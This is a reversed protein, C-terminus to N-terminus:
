EHREVSAVHGIPLPTVQTIYLELGCHDAEEDAVWAEAVREADRLNPSQVSLRAYVARGGEENYYAIVVEFSNM